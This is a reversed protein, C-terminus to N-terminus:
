GHHHEEVQAACTSCFPTFPLVDLRAAGIADGCRTCLGYTGAEIRGIAADIMQIEQLGSLGMGELVEEGERQVALDERDRAHHSELEAEIGALRDRLLTRRARLQALRDHDTVM